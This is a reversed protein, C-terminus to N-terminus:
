NADRAFRRAKGKGNGGKAAGKGNNSAGKAASGKNNGAKAANGGKAAAAGKGANGGKAAAGKGANAANGGKAAAGKGANGGKAAAGKGANGGQAAGGKGLKAKVADGAAKGVTFYVADDLSGHQAIPVLAPQHNAATNISALRYTGAPLGKAVAASIVGGKGKDNLGKFFAFTKPSTPKTQDISDLKEVVVHSHGIIQGGKNLQQPASFYNSDANVFNGFEMGQGAMSITFPTNEQLNDLNKPNTFKSSPMNDTSPIAGMPAPNCAGTKIQKGNMIPLNPVTACFNIFNNTSTLSAVQGATPVQQGNDAFGKAIVSQDLTLSSQLDNGKGGGNGKGNGKANNKGAAGKANAAGGKAAAANNGKGIVAAGKKAAGTDKGKGKAVAKGGAQRLDLGPLAVVQSILFSAVLLSTTLKM